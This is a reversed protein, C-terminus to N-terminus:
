HVVNVKVNQVGFDKAKMTPDENEKLEKMMWMTDRSLTRM